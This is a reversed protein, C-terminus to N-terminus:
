CDFFLILSMTSDLRNEHPRLKGYKEQSVTEKILYYLLLLSLYGPHWPNEGNRSCFRASRATSHMRMWGVVFYDISYNGLSAIHSGYVNLLM